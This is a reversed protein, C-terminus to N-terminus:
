LNAPFAGPDSAAIVIWWADVAPVQARAAGAPAPLKPEIAAAHTRSATLPRSRGGDADGTPGGRAPRVSSGRDPTRASAGRRAREFVVSHARAVAAHSRRQM